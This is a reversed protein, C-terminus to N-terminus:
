SGREDDAERLCRTNPEVVDRDGEILREILQITGPVAHLVAESLTARFDFDAGTVSVVFAPPRHSSLAEALRLLSEPSAVHGLPHREARSSIADCHVSGQDTGVRADVFIVTTAAAVREALEPVLMQTTVVEVGARSALREAVVWGVGDDGRLPNGYGIVLIV